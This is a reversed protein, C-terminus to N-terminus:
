RKRLYFFLVYLSVGALVVSVLQPLRIGGIIPTPDIRFFEMSFRIASYGILYLMAISGGPLIKKKYVFLLVGFLALNLVSEYLFTPHFFQQELYPAVRHEPAIFVKWPLETPKGFLEQNFFNGWRGVAQGIVVSLAAIDLVKWFPLGKKKVFWLIVLLGAILGGHIALGGNWIALVQDPNAGYYSLENLVHYARAGLWGFLVLYFALDSLDQKKFSGYTTGAYQLVGYGAFAAVVM